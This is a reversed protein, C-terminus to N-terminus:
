DSFYLPRPMEVTRREPLNVLYINSTLWYSVIEKVKSNNCSSTVSQRIMLNVKRSFAKAMGVRVFRMCGRTNVIHMLARSPAHM